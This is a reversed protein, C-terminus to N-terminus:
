SRKFTRKHVEKRARDRRQEPTDTPQHWLTITQQKFRKQPPADEAPGAEAAPRRQQAERPPLDPTSFGYDAISRQQQIAAINARIRQSNGFIVEAMPIASKYHAIAEQKRGLKACTEGLCELTSLTDGNPKNHYIYQRMTLAQQLLPLAEKFRKLKMHARGCQHLARAFPQSGDPYLGECLQLAARYQEIAQETPETRVNKGVRAIQALLNAYYYHAKVRQNDAKATEITARILAVMQQDHEPQKPNRNTTYLNVIALDVDVLDNQWGATKWVNHAKEFFGMATHYDTAQRGYVKGLQYYTKGLYPDNERLCLLKFKLAEHLIKKADDENNEYNLVFTGLSHYLEGIMLPDATIEKSFNLLQQVHPVWSRLRRYCDPDSLDVKFYRSVARLYCDLREKLPQDATGRQQQEFLKERIIQQLVRHMSISEDERKILSFRSLLSLLTDLKVNLQANNHHTDFGTTELMTRLLSYPIGDAALHAIFYLLEIGADSQARISQMNMDWSIYLPQHKDPPPLTDDALLTGAIEEFHKLYVDITLDNERIYACAQSIALPLRGMTTILPMSKGAEEGILERVLMLAEEETMVDVPISGPWNPNRSTIIIKGGRTPLFPQLDNPDETNDFVIVWNGYEEFWRKVKSFAKDISDTRTVIDNLLGFEQFQRQLQFTNEANFWITKAARQFLAMYIALYTKGVGGMGHIGTIAVRSDPAHLRHSITQILDRRQVYHEGLKPLKWLTNGAKRRLEEAPQLPVDAAGVRVVPLAKQNHSFHKLWLEGLAEESEQTPVTLQWKGTNPDRRQEAIQGVAMRCAHLVLSAHVANLRPGIVGRQAFNVANAGYLLNIKNGSPLTFQEIRKNWGHKIAQASLSAKDIEDDHSTCSAFFVNDQLKEWDDDRLCRQGTAGFIIRCDKLIEEKKVVRFGARRAARAREENIECVLTKMGKAKLHAAISRGIKGYGIVGVLSEVELFTGQAPDERLITDAAAVISKGVFFDEHEKTESRAISGVPFRFPLDGQIKNLAEEYKQHGNETDEIIGSLRGILYSSTLLQDLPKAFYGGIDIIVCQEGEQLTDRILDITRGPASLWERTRLTIKNKDFPLADLTRREVMVFQDSEHIIATEDTEEPPQRDERITESGKPIFVGVRGIKSLSQLMPLSSAVFHCAVIFVLPKERQGLLELCQANIDEYFEPCFKSDNLSLIAEPAGSM